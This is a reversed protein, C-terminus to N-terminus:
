ISILHIRQNISHNKKWSITRTTNKPSSYAIRKHDAPHRLLYMPMCPLIFNARLGIDIIPLDTRYAKVGKDIIYLLNCQMVTSILNQGFKTSYKMDISVRVLEFM